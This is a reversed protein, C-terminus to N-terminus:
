RNLIDAVHQATLRRRDDYVRTSVNTRPGLTDRISGGIHTANFSRPSRGRVSIRAAMGGDAKSIVGQEHQLINPAVPSGMAPSDPHVNSALISDGMGNSFSPQAAVSADPALANKPASIAAGIALAAGFGFLLPKGKKGLAGGFRGAKNVFELGTRSVRAMPSAPVHSTVADFVDGHGQLYQLVDGPRVKGRGTRMMWMRLNDLQDGHDGVFQTLSSELKKLAPDIDVGALFRETGDISIAQGKGLIALYQPDIVETAVRKLASMDIRGVGGILDDIMGRMAREEGAEIHKASIPAQELWELLHLAGATEGTVPTRMLAARAKSMNFSLLGIQETLQMKGAASELGAALSIGEAGAAKAKLLQTRIGFDQYAQGFVSGEHAMAAMKPEITPDLLVAGLIDADYDGAFGKALSWDLAIPAGWGSATKLKAVRQVTPLVAVAEDVAAKYYRVPAASFQGIFPHRLMLGGVDKGAMFRESMGWLGNLYDRRAADKMHRIQTIDIMETMMQEFTGKSIGVRYIDDPTAGFATVATLFRSGALKGRALGGKGTVTGAHAKTLTEIFSERAGAFGPGGKQAARLFDSYAYALKSEVMEGAGTMFGAMPRVDGAGPVFFDGMGPIGRVWGGAGFISQAAGPKLAQASLDSLMFPEGVAGVKSVASRLSRSLGMEAQIAAPDTVGRRSLLEATLPDALEGFQGARILEFIRPEISARAIGAGTVHKMGAHYVHAAGIARGEMAPAIWEPLFGFQEQLAIGEVGTAFPTAGFVLGAQEASIGLRQALSAMQRIGFNDHISRRALRGRIQTVFFEPDAAFQQRFRTVGAPIREDLMRQAIERARAANQLQVTLMEARISTPHTSSINRTIRSIQTDLDSITARLVTPDPVSGMNRHNLEVLATFQQKLLLDRNKKLENMHIVIDVGEGAVQRMQADGIFEAMGKADGFVHMFKESGLTREITLKLEGPAGEISPMMMGGMLRAGRGATVAEGTTTYGLIADAPLMAGGGEAIRSGELGPLMDLLGQSVDQIGLFIDQTTRRGWMGRMRNAILMQGEGLAQKGPVGTTYMAMAAPTRRAEGAFGPGMAFGFRRSTFDRGIATAAEATPIFGRVAQMPRRSYDVAEPFMRFQAPDMTMFSGKIVRNPSSPYLGKQAMGPIMAGIDESGLFAGQPTVLHMASASIQRSLDFAEGTPMYEFPTRIFSQFERVVARMEWATAGRQQLGQLKPLLHQQARLSVWQEYNMSSTIQGGEVIGFRGVINQTRQGFGSTVIGPASELPFNLSLAGPLTGGSFTFAAMTGPVGARSVLNMQLNKAGLGQKMAWISDGVQNSLLGKFQAPAFIDRVNSTIKWQKMSTYAGFSPDVGAMGMRGMTSINQAFKAGVRQHFVSTGRLGERVLGLMEIPTRANTLAAAVKGSISADPFARAAQKWATLVNEKNLTAFGPGDSLNAIRKGIDQYSTGAAGRLLNRVSEQTESAVGRNTRAFIDYLNNRDRYINRGSIGAGIAIPLIPAGTRAAEVLSSSLGRAKNKEANRAM